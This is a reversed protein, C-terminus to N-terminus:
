RDLGLNARRASILWASLRIPFVRAGEPDVVSHSNVIEQVIRELAARQEDTLQDIQAGYMMELMPKWFPRDAPPTHDASIMRTEIGHFGASSLATTLASTDAFRFPSFHGALCNEQAQRTGEPDENEMRLNATPDLERLKAACSRLTAFMTNEELDAWVMLALRGQTRMVRGIERLANEIDPVFMIGFRCCIGSFVGPGFPLHTLDAGVCHLNSAGHESARRRVGALMAPVLDSAIVHGNSGAQALHHALTLAPEGVGSALDLITHDDLTNAPDNAGVAEALALNFINTTDHVRDAWKNWAEASTEWRQEEAKLPNDVSTISAKLRSM